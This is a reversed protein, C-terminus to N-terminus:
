AGDGFCRRGRLVRPGGRDRDDRRDGSRAGMDKLAAISQVLLERGLANMKEPRNLTLTAVRDSVATLIDPM